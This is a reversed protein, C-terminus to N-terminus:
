LKRRRTAALGALGLGLLALTAPESTASPPQQGAELATIEFEFSSNIRGYFVGLGGVAYGDAEAGHFGNLWLTGWEPDGVKMRGVYFNDVQRGFSENINVGVGDAKLEWIEYDNYLLVGADGRSLLLQHQSWAAGYGFGFATADGDGGWNWDLYVDAEAGPPGTLQLGVNWSRNSYGGAANGYCFFIIAPTCNMFGSAYGVSKLWYRGDSLTHFFSNGAYVGTSGIPAYDDQRLPYSESILNFGIPGAEAPPHALCAALMGAWLAARAIKASRM